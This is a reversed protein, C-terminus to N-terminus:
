WLHHGRKATILLASAAEILSFDTTNLKTSETEKIGAVLAKFLELEVTSLESKKVDGTPIQTIKSVVKIISEKESLSNVLEETTPLIAGQTTAHIHIKFVRMREEQTSDVVSLLKIYDQKNAEPKLFRARGYVANRLGIAAIKRLRKNDSNLKNALVLPDTTFLAATYVLNRVLKPSLSSIVKDLDASVMWGLAHWGINENALAQWEESKGPIGLAKIVGQGLQRWTAPPPTHWSLSKQQSTEILSILAMKRTIDDKDYLAALFSKRLPKPLNTQFTLSLHGVYGLAGAAEQRVNPNKDNSLTGLMKSARQIDKITWTPRERSKSQQDYGAFALLGIAAATGQRVGDDSDNTLSELDDLKEIPWSSIIHRTDQNTEIYSRVVDKTSACGTFAAAVLIIVMPILRCTQIFDTKM